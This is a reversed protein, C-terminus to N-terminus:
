GKPKWQLKGFKNRGKKPALKAWENVKLEKKSKNQGTSKRKKGGLPKKLLLAKKRLNKVREKRKRADNEPCARPVNKQGNTEMGLKEGLGLKDTPKERRM